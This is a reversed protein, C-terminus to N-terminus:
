PAMETEEFANLFDRCFDQLPARHAGFSRLENPFHRRDCVAAVLLPSKQLSKM